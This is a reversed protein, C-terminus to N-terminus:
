EKPEKINMRGIAIGRLLMDKAFLRDKYGDIFVTSVYERVIDQMRKLENPAMQNLYIDVDDQKIPSFAIFKM